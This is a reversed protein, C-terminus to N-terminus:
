RTRNFEAEVRDGVGFRFAIVLVALVCSWGVRAGSTSTQILRATALFLVFCGGAIWVKHRGLAASVTGDRISSLMSPALGVIGLAVVGLVIVSGAIMASRRL